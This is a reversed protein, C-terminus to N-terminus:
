VCVGYREALARITSGGYADKTLEIFGEVTTEGDLSLGHDAVFAKRGMDCSGTLRHHWDYLSQNPYFVGLKHEKMFAEIREDESMGDFLKGVIAARAERLTEGHAFMGNQKIIYCDKATLDWMLIRGKAINGRVKDILTQVGDVLWVLDGAFAKIGCGYGCDSGYGYGSGFGSGCGSGSGCGFGSGSGCGFGSGSGCGSGFGDGYGSGDGCGYGSSLFEEIKKVDEM